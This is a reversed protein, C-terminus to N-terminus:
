SIKERCANKPTAIQTQQRLAAEGGAGLNRRAPRGLRRSVGCIACLEFIENPLATPFFYM